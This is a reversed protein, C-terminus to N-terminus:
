AILKGLSRATLDVMPVVRAYNLRTPGIVGLVGVVRGEMDRYPSAIVSSGSLGFLRNEAGIFIRTAEAEKARELLGAVSQKNELDDLLSRVREIDGLATEDLLNSAGRVILVPRENADASWVALGREVLDRSAEDLQTKGSAIEQRMAQAAEALTRGALNATVYNSAAELSGPAGADLEVVRNEVGGDEGVLVALARGQGLSVLSFQALRQELTPVMVMGAAGSLESLLMSTQQLAQEVPGSEASEALRSEIQAREEVTPESMRMMGDVFIRLGADTPMRGASTHPAALLGLGELEALVSRISAPSLNLAGDSALTKSGVPQGSAIYEEVVRQFIGRARDTLESIPPTAM